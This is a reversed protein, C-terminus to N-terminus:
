EQVAMSYRWDGDSSTAPTFSHSIPCLQLTSAPQWINFTTMNTDCDNYKSVFQLLREEGELCGIIGRLTVLAWRDKVWIHALTCVGWVGMTLPVWTSMGIKRGLAAGFPQMSVFLAYMVAVAINLDKEDLGADRTFHATEANGINSRDLSNILFLLCLVPLLLTDLKLLLRREFPQRRRHRHRSRSRASSPIDGTIMTTTNIRRSGIYQNTRPHLPSLGENHRRIDDRCDDHHHRRRDDKADRYSRQNSDSDDNDHEPISKYAATPLLAM